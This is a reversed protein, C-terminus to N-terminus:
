AAGLGVMYKLDKPVIPMNSLAVNILLCAGPVSNNLVKQLVFHFAYVPQSEKLSAAYTIVHHHLLPWYFVLIIIQCALALDHFVGATQRLKQNKQQSELGAFFTLAISAMTIYLGWNTFTSAHLIVPHQVFCGYVFVIFTTSFLCIRIIQLKAHTIPFTSNYFDFYNENFHYAVHGSQDDDYAPASQSM